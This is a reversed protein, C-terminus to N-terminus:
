AGGRFAVLALMSLGLGVVSLLALQLWDRRTVNAMDAITLSFDDSKGQRTRARAFTLNVATGVITVGSLLLLVRLPSEGAALM